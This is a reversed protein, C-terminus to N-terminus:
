PQRRTWAPWRTGARMPPRSRRLWAAPGTSSTSAIRRPASPTKWAAPGAPSRSPRSCTPWARRSSAASRRSSAWRPWSTPTCTTREPRGRSRWRGNRWRGPRTRRASCCGGPPWRPWSAPRSGPRRSTRSCSWPRSPPRWRPRPIAWKGGTGASGSWGGPWTWRPPTTRGPWRTRRGPPPSSLIARGAPRGPRRKGCAPGAAPLWDALELALRYDRAAEPYARVSVAHRAALVAAPAARDPCGALHWHRALLGPDSRPSAALVEAFRRHLRRRDGPLLQEYVVQRILTHGFSYGEGSPVLLGSGVAARVAALLRTESMTVAAALLEHSMGGDAVSLQDIVARAQSTVGAAKALVADTISAPMLGPGASALERAYLPNGEAASIVAARADASTGAPMLDAIVGAIEAPDLPALRLRLVGPRRELEALWPRISGSLEDDRVTAVVMVRRGRLRVALFDLLERSSEDAWHLDELVLLVPAEAALDALVQLVRVFLRHRRTLMDGADDDDLLWGAHDRLAAVFPGYALATGALPASEGTLVQAKAASGCFDDVLRTKGIGAPGTILLLRSEGARVRAYAASLADREVARGIVPTARAVYSLTGAAGSSTSM